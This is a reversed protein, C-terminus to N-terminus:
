APARVKDGYGIGDICARKRGRNGQNAGIVSVGM